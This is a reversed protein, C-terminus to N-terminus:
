AATDAAMASGLSRPAHVHSSLSASRPLFCDGPPEWLPLRGLLRRDKSSAPATALATAGLGHDPEEFLSFPVGRCSLRHAWDCLAARDPVALLALRCQAAPPGFEAAINMAAHIAQVMQQALPIDTRVLVHCYLAAEKDFAVKGPMSM